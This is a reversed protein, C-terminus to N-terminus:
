GRALSVGAIRLFEADTVECIVYYIGCAMSVGGTAGSWFMVSPDKALLIPGPFMNEKYEEWIFETGAGGDGGVTPGRGGMVRNDGPGLLTTGPDPDSVLLITAYDAVLPLSGIVTEMGLVAVVFGPGPSIEYRQVDLTDDALSATNRRSVMVGTRQRVGPPLALGDM